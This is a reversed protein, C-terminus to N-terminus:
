TASHEHESEQHHAINERATNLNLAGKKVLRYVEGTPSFTKAIFLDWGWLSDSQEQLWVGAYKQEM